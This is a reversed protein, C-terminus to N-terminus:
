GRKRRGPCATVPSRAGSRVGLLAGREAVVVEVGDDVVVAAQVVALHEVVLAGRVTVANVAVRLPRTQRSFADCVHRILFSPALLSM